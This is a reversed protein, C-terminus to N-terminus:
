GFDNNHETFSAFASYEDGIWTNERYDHGKISKLPVLDIM